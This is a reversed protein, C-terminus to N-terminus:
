GPTDRGPKRAEQMSKAYGIVERWTRPWLAVAVLGLAAWWGLQHVFLALAFAATWAAVVGYAPTGIERAFYFHVIAYGALAAIEALGYGILGMEPVLVLATGAFLAIHVAHFVVVKFNERLVYLASSHLSFVANVLFGLAIFPYIEAVPRWEDGFAPPLIWVSVWAFGVLLPAQALIQLKMGEGVARVLRGRDGQVRALAAISIRWMAEKVFSLGRAFRIALAVYGAAEAGLYRGVILPNVLERAQYVWLSASFGLGYRIMRASSGTDWRLRPLYRAALYLSAFLFVQQIWWGAVPASVGFGAYALPLAAVYYAGMGSLEIMAVRKYDLARELRALPVKALVAVPLSLFLALAAPAFGEIRVWGEILPIALVALATSAAGLLLLLTFAQHYTEDGDEEGERRVLYVNVGWLAVNLLFMFIGLAVAYVGYSEPGIERTLLLIGGFNITVGLGQRFSLYAGGRM